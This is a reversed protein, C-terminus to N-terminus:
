PIGLPTFSEVYPRVGFSNEKGSSTLVLSIKGVLTDINDVTSIGFQNYIPIYSHAVDLREVGIININSIKLENILDEVLDNTTDRLENQNGGAIIVQDISDNFEKYHNFHIYKNSILYKLLYSIEENIFLDMMEINIRHLLKEETLSLGLSTNIKHLEKDNLNVIKDTFVIHIPMVAGAEEVVEKINNYYYDETIQVLAINMGSLRNSIIEYYAKEIFAQKNENEKTLEEITNILNEKEIRLMNFNYELSDVLQQQQSLYIEDGNMNFGIIIGIGLSIFISAITIIYYKIDIVM